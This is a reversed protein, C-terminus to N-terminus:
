GSGHLYRALHEGTVSARERLLDAPVGQFVIRGGDHGAGPGMDIIWDAQAIVELNHEIVIVTGANDVLRDMVETLRDIDSLHLGTTPEDLVYLGGHQVLETALKIRQREGGSLTSLPQGLTLYGLGVQELQATIARLEPEVLFGHAESVSMDLVQDISRGRLAYRLVEPSFRKGHCAECVSEIPDMFALDIQIAGLGKCAPCAGSSNASFLGVDVGNAEAFQRRIPDLLGTYTATNSRRSAHLAGQDICVTEPYTRAFVGNILSSKGSGAVGTVVTMVGVPLDVDLKRLNHLSAKRLPLWGRPDRPRTKLRPRRAIHRGTLTKARALGALDGQYVVRGGDRGAAPGMDVIHDAIAIVDPDHEVVLVTNGKDRLRRLLLNVQHVDRAHLGISPEDFIYSMDTLSSGLHKVMKVRQSEGGSLSATQRDLSLYALGIGILHELREVIAAIVSAAERSKLGRMFAILEDAQMAACQAINGGEIRCRLVERNLRAGKCQACTRRSVVRSLAERSAGKVKEGSQHLFSREFRHLLGEYKSSAWWGKLPHKPKFPEANLLLDWEREDYDRLPKDNDFLGSLAYRKWRASGVALAPFRIAGENLSKDRDILKDLDVAETTGLGHCTPCMGEPHNFSFLTSEGVAPRGIRSYLLRLLAYIDTATGVTSRANGGLRKQDVVIAASLNEIADADPQGYHPLRHRAFSTFTENIQRQSEAAITDFVLSSKGSGSVGTFVVICKKPIEIDINKLNHERAGLVRIPREQM